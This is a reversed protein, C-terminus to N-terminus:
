TDVAIGRSRIIEGWRRSEARAFARFQEPRGQMPEMGFDLFRKLVSTNSLAKNLEANLKSVVADPLGAPGLLGQFAFVEADKIGKEILTPVGPLLPSRERGGFALVRVKGSQMLGFGSALDLFMCPVQGGMVDQMAPAAGRYPIHVLFTQSRDKFMEMALHHPSGNGPSAYDLRGPNGRVYAMFEDFNQAPFSPTVVLALPFKGIGGIYSFDREPNVPMRKFLHENFAMLANDAQLITRGDAAARAVEQAGINTAAGPKNDVVITQGLAARMAEALARALVDTGGGPPYPVVWRLTDAQARAALFPNLALAGLTASFTRRHIM